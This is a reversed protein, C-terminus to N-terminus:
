LGTGYPTSSTVSGMSNGSIYPSKRWYETFWFCKLFLDVKRWVRIDKHFVLCYVVDVFLTIRHVINKITKQRILLITNDQTVDILFEDRSIYINVHQIAHQKSEM